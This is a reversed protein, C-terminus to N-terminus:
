VPNRLKRRKMAGPAKRVSPPANSPSGGNDTDHSNGQTKHASFGGPASARPCSSAKVRRKRGSGSAVGATPSGAKPRPAKGASAPPLRRKM